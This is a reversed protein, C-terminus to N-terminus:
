MVDPKLMVPARSKRLCVRAFFDNRHLCLDEVREVPIEAPRCRPIEVMPEARRAPEILLRPQSGLVQHLSVQLLDLAQVVQRGLDGSASDRERQSQVAQWGPYPDRAEM